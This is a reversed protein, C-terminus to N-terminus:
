KFLNLISQWISNLLDVIWQIPNPPIPPIINCKWECKYGEGCIWHGDCTAHPMGECQLADTCEKPEEYFLRVDASYSIANGCNDHCSADSSWWYNFEIPCSDGTADFVKSISTATPYCCICGCSGSGAGCSCTYSSTQTFSIVQCKNYTVGKVNAWSKLGALSMTGDYASPNLGRNYFTCRMETSSSKVCQTYPNAESVLSEPQQNRILLAAIILIILAIPILSKNKM